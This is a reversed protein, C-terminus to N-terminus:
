TCMLRLLILDGKAEKICERLFPWLMYLNYEQLYFFWSFFGLELENTKLYMIYGTAGRISAKKEFKQPRTERMGGVIHKQQTEGKGWNKDFIWETVM